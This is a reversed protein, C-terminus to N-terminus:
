YKSYMLYKFSDLDLLKDFDFAHTAATSSSHKASRIVIYTPGSYSITKLDGIKGDSIHIGAYVSPILKHSPAVVWDHDPPTVRYEMHM